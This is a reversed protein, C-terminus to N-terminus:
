SWRDTFRAIQALLADPEATLQHDDEILVLEVASQRDSFQVSQLHSVTADRTGHVILTPVSLSVENSDYRRLEEVFGYHVPVERGTESEVLPLVGESRWRQEVEPTLLTQTEHWPYFVPALLVLGRIRDRDVQALKHFVHTAVFGGFSSGILFVGREAPVRQVAALVTAVVEDVSLREFSPLALSPAYVTAGLGRYHNSVLRAKTSGPSSGLGHLYIIEPLYGM